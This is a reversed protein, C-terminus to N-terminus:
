RNRWAGTLRWVAKAAALHGHDALWIALRDRWSTCWLRLRTYWPLPLAHRWRGKYLYRHRQPSALAAAIRRNLEDLEEGGKM